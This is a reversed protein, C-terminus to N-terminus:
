WNQDPVRGSLALTGNPELTAQVFVRFDSRLFRSLTPDLDTEYWISRDENYVIVRGPPFMSQQVKVIITTM